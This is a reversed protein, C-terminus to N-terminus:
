ALYRRNVLNYIAQKYYYSLFFNQDQPGKYRTNQTTTM